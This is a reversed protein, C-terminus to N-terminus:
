MSLLLKEEETCFVLVPMRDQYVIFIKRVLVADNVGDIGKIYNHLFLTNSTSFVESYALKLELTELDSELEAPQIQKFYKTHGFEHMIAVIFDLEISNQTYPKYAVMSDPYIKEFRDYLELLNWYCALNFRMDSDLVTTSILQDAGYYTCLNRFLAITWIEMWREPLTEFMARNLRRRFEAATKLDCDYTYRSIQAPYHMFPLTSNLYFVDNANTHAIIYIGEENRLTYRIENFIFWGEERNYNLLAEPTKADM